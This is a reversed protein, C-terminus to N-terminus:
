VEAVFVGGNLITVLAAEDFVGRNEFIFRFRQVIEGYLLGASLALEFSFERLEFFEAGFTFDYLLHLVVDDHAGDHLAADADVRSNPDIKAILEENGACGETM